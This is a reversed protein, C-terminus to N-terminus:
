EGWYEQEEVYDAVQKTRICCECGVVEGSEDIYLNHGGSLEEGCVPCEFTDVEPEEVLDSAQPQYYWRSMEM